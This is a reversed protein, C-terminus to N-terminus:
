ESWALLATEMDDLYDLYADKLSKPLKENDQIMQRLKDLLEM